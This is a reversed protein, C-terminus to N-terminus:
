YQVNPIKGLTQLYHANQPRNSRAPPRRSPQRSERPKEPADNLIVSEAGEAEHVRGMRPPRDAGPIRRVTRGPDVSIPGLIEDASIWAEARRPAGIQREMPSITSRCAASILTRALVMMEGFLLRVRQGVLSFSTRLHAPIPLVEVVRGGDQM